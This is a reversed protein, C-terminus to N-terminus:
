CSFQHSDRRGWPKEQERCLHEWPLRLVLALWGVPLEPAPAVAQPPGHTLSAGPGAGLVLRLTLIWGLSRYRCCTLGSTSIRTVTPHKCLLGQWWRPQRLMRGAQGASRPPVREGPCCGDPVALSSHNILLYLDFRGNLLAAGGATLVGPFLRRPARTLQGRRRPM